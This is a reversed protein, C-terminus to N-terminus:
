CIPQAHCVEAPNDTVVAPQRAELAEHTVLWLFARRDDHEGIELRSGIAGPSGVFELLDDLFREELDPLSLCQGRYAPLSEKHM